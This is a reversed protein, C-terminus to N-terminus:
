GQSNTFWEITTDIRFQFNENRPLGNITKITFPIELPLQCGPAHIWGTLELSNAPIRLTNKSTEAAVVPVLSIIFTVREGVRIENLDQGNLQPPTLNITWATTAVSIQQKRRRAIEDTISKGPDEGRVAVIDYLESSPLGM